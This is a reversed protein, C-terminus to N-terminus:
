KRIRKDETLRMFFQEVQKVTEHQSLQNARNKTKEKYKQIISPNRIWKLLERYIDEEDFGCIVGCPDEGLLETMGSVPTTIVPTNVIVAESAATSFGESSSACVFVDCKAVYKYPNNQYGLFTFTDSLGNKDVYSEIKKREKGEGIIYTHVPYSEEILRKHVRALKMFGKLPVIKGVGCIKYEEKKFLGRQVDEEKLHLIKETEITNYLVKLNRIDPFVSQFSQCVLNSVAVIADLRGYCDAAEQFNRFSAAASDQNSISSHIWSVLKASKNRCGSIIRASPGELYSVEIDYKERIYLEHLFAPSFLKMVHSNLPFTIKYVTKYRVEPCLFRENIGGGFLAMVTIEFIAKDMNNVLNVLVKEAGGPGLDHILFLVKIKSM